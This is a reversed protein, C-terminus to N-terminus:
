FTIGKLQLYISDPCIDIDENWAIAGYHDIHIPKAIM